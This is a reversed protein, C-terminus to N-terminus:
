TNISIPLHIFYVGFSTYINQYIEPIDIEFLSDVIRSMLLRIDNKKFDYPVLMDFTDAYRHSVYGEELIDILLLLIKQLVQDGFLIGFKANLYRFQKINMEIYVYPSNDHCIVQEYVEKLWADTHNMAKSTPIQM